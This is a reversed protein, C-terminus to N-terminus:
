PLQMLRLAIDTLIAGVVLRVLWVKGEDLAAVKLSIARIEAILGPEKGVGKLADKLEELTEAQAILGSKGHEGYLVDQHDELRSLMSQVNEKLGSFENVLQGVQKELSTVALELRTLRNEVLPSPSQPPM